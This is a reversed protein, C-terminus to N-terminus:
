WHGWVFPSMLRHRQDYGNTKNSAWWQSLTWKFQVIADM